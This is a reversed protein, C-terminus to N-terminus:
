QEYGRIKEYDEKMRDFVQQARVRRAEKVAKRLDAVDLTEDVPVEEIEESVAIRLPM